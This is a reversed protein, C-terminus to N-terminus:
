KNQWVCKNQVSVLPFPLTESTSASQHKSQLRSLLIPVQSLTSHTDEKMRAMAPTAVPPVNSAM